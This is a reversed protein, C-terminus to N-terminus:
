LRSGSRPAQRSIHTHPPTIIFRARSFQMLESTASSLAREEAAAVVDYVPFPDLPVQVASEQDHVTVRLHSMGVTGQAFISVIVEEDQMVPAYLFQLGPAM